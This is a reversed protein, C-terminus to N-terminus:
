SQRNASLTRSLRNLGQRWAKPRIGFTHFLKTNDGNAIRIKPLEGGEELASIMVEPIDEYHRAQELLAQGFQFANVQEVGSSHYTGWLQPNCNVQQLMALITQALDTSVTPSFTHQTNLQWNQQQRVGQLFRSAFDHGDLYLPLGARLILHQPQQRVQEEAQLFAKALETDTYEEDDETRNQTPESPFVGLSSLFLVPIQWQRAQELWGGLYRLDDLRYISPAIVMFASAISSQQLQAQSSFEFDQYMLGQAELLRVLSAGVPQESGVIYTKFFTIAAM